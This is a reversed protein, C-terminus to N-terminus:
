SFLMFKTKAATNISLKNINLWDSIKNIEIQMVENLTKLCTHSYFVNTDIISLIISWYNTMMVLVLQDSVEVKMGKISAYLESREINDLITRVTFTM